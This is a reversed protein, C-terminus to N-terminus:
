QGTEEGHDRRMGDGSPGSLTTPAEGPDGLADPEVPDARDLLLDLADTVGDEPGAGALGLRDAVERALRRYARAGRGSPDFVTIPQGHSPAESLRVTRPVVTRFALEGFYARIEDAVQESLNTRADYMTLVVGGIRLEPNLGGHVLQLTQMLQSLGELAYYECQVPVLVQDAAVLANVTLLGLSPPCDVLILDYDGRVDALADRLRSERSFVSVLEVEAGALDLSSPVADLNPVATGTTAEAAALEDILVRYTSPTDGEARLGLGTTANGQPDLDVVLVRIGRDALAAALSVVTTTKGVGGKQNAACLVIAERSSGGAQPSPQEAVEAAGVGAGGGSPEGAPVPEGPDVSMFPRASDATPDAPQEQAPGDPDAPGGQPDSSEREPVGPREAEARGRHGNEGLWARARRRWSM